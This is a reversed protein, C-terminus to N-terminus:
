RHCHRQMVLIQITNSCRYRTPCPPPALWALLRQSSDAVSTKLFILIEMSDLLLSSAAGRPAIARLPLGISFAIAMSRLSTSCQCAAKVTQFSFLTLCLSTVRPSVSFTFNDRYLLWRPLLVTQSLSTLLRSSPSVRNITWHTDFMASPRPYFTFIVRVSQRLIYLTQSYAFFHHCAYNRYLM